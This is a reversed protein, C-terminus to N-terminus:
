VRQEDEPAMRIAPGVGPNPVWEELSRVDALRGAVDPDLAEAAAVATEM